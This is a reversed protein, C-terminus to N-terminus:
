TAAPQPEAGVQLSSLQETDYKRRLAAIADSDPPGSQALIEALGVFYRDHGPPSCILLFKAPADTRNAFAHPVHPPVFVCMGPGAPFTEEGVRFELEGDLMYWTEELREHVHLGTDLGPAAAWESLSAGDAQESPVKFTVETGRLSISDGMGATLLVPQGSM